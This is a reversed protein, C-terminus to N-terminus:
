QAPPTDSDLVHFPCVQQHHKPAHHKSAYDARNLIGKRWLYQFQQQADRCKLWHFRQDMSKSSRPPMTGMTIGQATINDTTVPTPRLQAHGMEKLTTRLPAATKCGYYLAALEAESTSSMVHKIISSLTLVARNNFDKDNQNTLYFHGTARSRGGTESLYSADMHVALIMNCAHYRLGANPHMTVYNLLWHCANAIARTGKAQRTAITSLAALLTPNVARAYYLLTGAIDQVCKIESKSLPASTDTEVRQVKAGYQITAANYPANQPITPMAYQYKKLATAIYGPMSFDVHRHTYDWTLKVGCFLSGEYDVAVTYHEDLAKKLHEFDAMNTVKIGFNDIVLYFTISQWM